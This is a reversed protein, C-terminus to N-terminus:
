AATPETRRIVAALAEALSEASVPKALHGDFGAARFGEVQARMAHATCAIAPVPARGAAAEAARLAALTEVGGMEPMVIDILAADWGGDAAAALLAAGSEVVRAQAGLRDLFGELVMRNIENDDCALVRLGAADAAHGARAGLSAGSACDLPLDLAFRAGAGPASEVSVRGGMAEALGKVISLGLGTGGFRRAISADAQAYGEFIHAAAEPTMGVGGDRVVIGVRAPDGADIEVAVETGASFKLANGM